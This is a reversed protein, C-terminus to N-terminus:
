RTGTFRTGTFRIQALRDLPVYRHAAIATSEALSLRHMRHQFATLFRQEYAEAEGGRELARNLAALRGLTTVSEWPELTDALYECVNVAKELREPDGLQEYVRVLALARDVDGEFGREHGLQELISCSGALDGSLEAIWAKALMALKFLDADNGRNKEALVDCADRAADPRRAVFLRFVEELKLLEAPKRWLHSQGVALFEGTGREPDRVLQLLSELRMQAGGEPNMAREQAWLAFAESLEGRMHKIKALLSLAEADEPRQQLLRTAASEADDLEGIEVLLKAVGLSEEVAAEM